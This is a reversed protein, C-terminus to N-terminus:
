RRIPRAKPFLDKNKEEFEKAMEDTIGKDKLNAIIKENEKLSKIKKAFQGPISPLGPTKMYWNVNDIVRKAIVYEKVDDNWIITSKDGDQKITYIHEKTEKGESIFQSYSKIIKM